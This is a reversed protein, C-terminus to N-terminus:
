SDGDGQEALGEKVESWWVGGMWVSLSWGGVVRTGVCGYGCGAASISLIDAAFPLSAIEINLKLDLNM